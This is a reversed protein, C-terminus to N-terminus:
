VSTPLSFFPPVLCQNDKSTQLLKGEQLHRALSSPCKSSDQPQNLGRLPINSATKFWARSDHAMKSAM